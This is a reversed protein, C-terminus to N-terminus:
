RDEGVSSVLDSWERMIQMQGDRDGKAIAANARHGYAVQLARTRTPRQEYTDPYQGAVKVALAAALDHRQHVAYLDAVASAWWEKRPLWELAIESLESFYPAIEFTPRASLKRIIDERDMDGIGIYGPRSDLHLASVATKCWFPHEELKLFRLQDAAEGSPLQSIVELFFSQIMDTNPEEEALRLGLRIARRVDDRHMASPGYTATFLLMQQILRPRRDRPTEVIWAARIAGKLVSLYEDDFARLVLNTLHTPLSLGPSRISGLVRLAAARESPNDGALSGELLPLARDFSEQQHVIQQLVDLLHTRALDDDISSWRAKLSSIYTHPEGAAVAELATELRSLVTSRLIREGEFTFFSEATIDDSAPERRDWERLRHTWLIVLRILEQMQASASSSHERCIISLNDAVDSLTETELDGELLTLSRQIITVIAKRPVNERFRSPSASIYCRWLSRALSPEATEIRAALQEDCHRPNAVFIDGVVRAVQATAFPDGLTQSADPHRLSELLDPLLSMGADPRAAVLGEAAHGAHARMWVEPHQLLLGILRKAGVPDCDYFRLLAAPQADVRRDRLPEPRGAALQVVGTLSEKEVNFDDAHTAIIRGAAGVAIDERLARFAIKLASEASPRNQREFIALSAELFVGNSIELAEATMHEVLSDSFDGPAMEAHKVLLEEAEQDKDVSDVRDLLDLISQTAPDTQGLLFRRNAARSRSAELAEIREQAANARLRERKAIRADAWTGLHEPSKTAARDGCGICNKEYFGVATEKLRMGFISPASAFDCRLSGGSIPLGSQEEILGVGFPGRTYSINQCFADALRLVELNEEGIQIAQAIEDDPTDM